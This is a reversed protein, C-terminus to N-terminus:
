YDFERLCRFSGDFEHNIGDVLREIDNAYHSHNIIVRSATIIAIRLGPNFEGGLELKRSKGKLFIEYLPRGYEEVENYSNCKSGIFYLNVYLNQLGRELMRCVLGSKGELSFDNLLVKREQTQVM